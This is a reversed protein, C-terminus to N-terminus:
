STSHNPHSKIHLNTVVHLACHGWRQGVRITNTKLFMGVSGNSIRPVFSLFSYYLIDNEMNYIYDNVQQGATWKWCYTIVIIIWITDYSWLCQCFNFSGMGVVNWIHISYNHVTGQIINNNLVNINWVKASSTDKFQIGLKVDYQFREM